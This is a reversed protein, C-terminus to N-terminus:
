TQTELASGVPTKKRFSDECLWMSHQYLLAWPLLLKDCVCLIALNTSICYLISQEISHWAHFPQKNISPAAYAAQWYILTYWSKTVNHGQMLRVWFVFTYGSLWCSPLTHKQYLLLAKVTWLCRMKRHVTQWWHLYEKFTCYSIGTCNAQCDDIALKSSTVDVSPKNIEHKILGICFLISM